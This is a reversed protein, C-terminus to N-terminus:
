CRDEHFFPWCTAPAPQRRATPATRFYQVDYSTRVICVLTKALPFTASGPGSRRCSSIRAPSRRSALTSFPRITRVGRLLRGCRAFNTVSGTVPSGARLAPGFAGSNVLLSTFSIRALKGQNPLQRIFGGHDVQEVYFATTGRLNRYWSNQIKVSQERRVQPAGKGSETRDENPSYDQCRPHFPIASSFWSYCSHIWHDRIHTARYKSCRCSTRTGM